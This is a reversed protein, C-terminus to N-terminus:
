KEGVMSSSVTDCGTLAHSLPLAASKAPGLSGAYYHIPLYRFNNETGFAIWLEELALEQFTSIVLVVVDTDVTRIM